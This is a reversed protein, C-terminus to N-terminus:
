TAALICSLLELLHLPRSNGNLTHSTGVNGFLAIKCCCSNLCHESHANHSSLEKDNTSRNHTKLRLASALCHLPLTLSLAICRNLNLLCPSTIGNLYPVDVGDEKGQSNLSGKTTVSSLRFISLSLPSDQNKLAGDSHQRCFPHALLGNIRSLANLVLPSTVIRASLISCCGNNLGFKSSVATAGPINLYDVLGDQYLLHEPRKCALLPILFHSNSDNGDLSSGPTSWDLVVENSDTLRRCFDLCLRPSIKNLFVVQHHDQSCDLELSPISSSLLLSGVKGSLHSSESNLCRITTVFGLSLVALLASRRENKLSGETTMPGLLRKSLGLICDNNHLFIDSPM